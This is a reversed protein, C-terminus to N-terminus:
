GVLTPDGIADFGDKGFGDGEFAQLAYLLVEPEPAPLPNAAFPISRFCGSGAVFNRLSTPTFRTSSSPDLLQEGATRWRALLLLTGGPALLRRAEQLAALPADLRELVRDLVLLDILGDEIPIRAPDEVLHPIVWAPDREAHARASEIADVRDDVATAQIRHDALGRAVSGDGAGVMLVRVPQNPRISGRVLAVRNNVRTVDEDIGAVDPEPPDPPSPVLTTGLRGRLADRDPVVRDFGWKERFIRRSDALSGAGDSASPRGRRLSLRHEYIIDPDTMAKWGGLLLRIGLDVTQGRPISEDYAGIEDFARRRMLHFCGMVHDHGRLGSPIETSAGAGVHQYGHPHLLLDGVSHLEGEHTLQRGGLVGLRENADFHAVTRRLWGPTLLRVDGDFRCIIRGRAEAMLRNLVVSLRGVHDHEILRCFPRDNRWSREAWARATELSDDRSGDDGILIEVETEDGELTSRISELLDGLLDTVGDVSSERGNEYNPIIISATPSM